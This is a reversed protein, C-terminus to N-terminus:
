WVLLIRGVEFVSFDGKRNNGASYIEETLVAPRLRILTWRVRDGNRLSGGFSRRCIYEYRFRAGSGSSSIVVM